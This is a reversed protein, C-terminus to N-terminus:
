CENALQWREMGEPGFDVEMLALTFEDVEDMRRETMFKETDNRHAFGISREACLKTWASATTADWVGRRTTLKMSGHCPGTGTKLLEYGSLVFMSIYWTRRVSESLIWAHWLLQEPSIPYPIPFDSTLQPTYNTLANCLLLTGDSAAQSTHELMQQTWDQLVPLYQEALHRQRIDGDFLRIVSYVLLAQVRGIHGLTDNAFEGSAQSAVLRDTKEEIFRLVM